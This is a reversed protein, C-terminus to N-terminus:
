VVLWLLGVADVVGKAEEGFAAGVISGIMAWAARTKFLGKIKEM